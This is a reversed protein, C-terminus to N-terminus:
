EAEPARPESTLPGQPGGQQEQDQSSFHTLMFVVFHKLELSESRGGLITTHKNKLTGHENPSVM